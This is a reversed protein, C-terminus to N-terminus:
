TSVPIRLSKCDCGVYSDGLTSKTIEVETSNCVANACDNSSSGGEWHYGTLEVPTPCCYKQGSSYCNDYKKIVSVKGSPCEKGSDFADSFELGDLQM